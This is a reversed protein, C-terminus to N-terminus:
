PLRGAAVMRSKLISPVIWIVQDDFTDSPARSVFILNIDANELEDGAAGGLQAGTSQYSGTPRSGHSIIVAPVDSAINATSAGNAKINATGTTDLTFSTQAGVPVAATFASGVFYTYRNGWPDSEPLGLTAWPLVGYQATNLCPPTAAIGANANGTALTAVAPCPLRGNAIAFGLLAERINELQRQADANEAVARQASVGFMLGTSLLAVIILVITLEVLTFGTQFYKVSLAKM